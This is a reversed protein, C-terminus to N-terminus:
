KIFRALWTELANQTPPSGTHTITYVGITFTHMYPCSEPTGGQLTTQRYVTGTGLVRVEIAWDTAVRKISYGGNYPCSQVTREKVTVCAVYYATGPSNAGVSSSLTFNLGHLLTHKIDPHIGLIPVRPKAATKNTCVTKAAQAMLEKAQIDTSKSFSDLEAARASTVQDKTSTSLATQEALSISDLAAYHDNSSSQSKAWLLYAGALEDSVPDSKGPGLLQIATKFHAVADSYNRAALLDKGWNRHLEPIAIRAQDAPGGAASPNPDADIAQNFRKEAETFDKATMLSTGWEVYMEALTLNVESPSVDAAYEDLLLLLNAEAEKYEQNGKQDNAWRYLSNAAATHAEKLYIGQPYTTLYHKYEKYAESWTGQTYQSEARLYLKCEEMQIRMSKTTPVISEPFIKTSGSALTIVAGCDKQTYLSEVRSTFISGSVYYIVIYVFLCGFIVLVTLWAVKRNMGRTTPSSERSTSM